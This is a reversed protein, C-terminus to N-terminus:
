LTQLDTEGVFVGQRGAPGPVQVVMLGIVVGRHIYGDFVVEPIGIVPIGLDNPTPERKIGLRIGARYECNFHLVNGPLFELLVQALTIGAIRNQFICIQFRRIQFVDDVEPDTQLVFEVVANGNSETEAVEGVIHIFIRIRGDEGSARTKGDSGPQHRDRNFDHLDGTELLM